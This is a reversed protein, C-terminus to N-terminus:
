SMVTDRDYGKPLPGQLLFGCALLKLGSGFGLQPEVTM